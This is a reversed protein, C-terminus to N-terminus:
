NDITEELRKIIENDLLYLKQVGNELVFYHGIYFGLMILIASAISVIYYNPFIFGWFAFFVFLLGFFLTILLHIIREHQFFGIQVRNFSSLAVWNFDPNENKLAKEIFAIHQKLNKGM